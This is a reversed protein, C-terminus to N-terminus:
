VSPLRGFVDPLVLFYCSYLILFCLITLSAMTNLLSGLKKKELVYMLRGGSPKSSIVCLTQIIYLSFQKNKLVIITIHLHIDVAM